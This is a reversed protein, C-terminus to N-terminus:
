RRHCKREADSGSVPVAGQHQMRMGTGKETMTVVRLYCRQQPDTSRFTAACGISDCGASAAQALLTNRRSQSVQTWSSGYEISESAWLSSDATAPASTYGNRAVFDEACRKLFAATSERAGRTFSCRRATESTDAPRTQGELGGGLVVVSALLLVLVRQSM